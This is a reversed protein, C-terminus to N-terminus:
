HSTGESRTIKNYLNYKGVPKDMPIRKVEKFTAADFVILAGGDAKREWLSALVYKGDRTFEVHALTKGPDTKVEAVKELTRKDIVQLTDKAKSMMSDTWAYPTAEHSRMFFGPGLTPIAKVLSWDKMDIVSVVGEKLNPSAMVRRGNWDWTIGSGLHPMGPLSLDAIKKRVDLHVVQGKGAERSSGMLEAYDQTFFFDDLPTSLRTRRPNLFGPIFAGEKYKFDHIMGVPIDEAQRDYSIEWVEPVDKLAAVFSKRPAADYVASVRSSEKGDIDRVPHIKLLNLDADLLVLTHPLYNAVAVIKGDGSVAVNRTNIGARIEAVVKLNWIDFKAIWGDRSAFFVYRGDPTFKPGGHLAYRSPFRHIPELKDGDLVTVHHDGTEVVIFLNMMDVGAFVAAPKAPLGVHHAVRSAMLQEASWTPAPTVPTYILNVVAEIEELSLKDGFPLMQTAARGERVTKQAEPKRLRALSEPLLAPGTIGFRDSGHCAVCHQQYIELPEAAVASGTAAALVFAILGRM